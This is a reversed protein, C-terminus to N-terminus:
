RLDNGKAGCRLHDLVAGCAKWIAWSPMLFARFVPSSSARGLRHLPRCPGNTMDRPQGGGLLRVTKPPPRALQPATHGNAYKCQGVWQSKRKLGPGGRSCLFHCHGPSHLDGLPCRVGVTDKEEPTCGSVKDEGTDKEDPTCGSVKDLGLAAVIDAIHQDVSLADIPEVCDIDQRWKPHTYSIARWGKPRCNNIPISGRNTKLNYGTLHRVDGRTKGVLQVGVRQSMWPVGADALALKWSEKIRGEVEQFGRSGLPLRFVFHIHPRVDVFETEYWYHFKGLGTRKLQIRHLFREVVNRFQYYGLWCSFSLTCSYTDCSLYDYRSRRGAARRRVLHGHKLCHKNNCYGGCTAHYCSTNPVLESATHLHPSYAGAWLDPYDSLRGSPVRYQM